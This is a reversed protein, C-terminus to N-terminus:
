PVHNYITTLGGYSMALIDGSVCYGLVVENGEATRVMLRGAGAGNDQAAWHQATLVEGARRVIMSGDPTFEIVEGGEPNSWRGVLFSV